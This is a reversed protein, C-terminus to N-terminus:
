YPNTTIEIEEFKIPSNTIFNFNIIFYRGYVLSNKDSFLSQASRRNNEPTTEDGYSYGYINDAHLVNRFFNVNWSDIDHKFGKYDLLGNTVSPVTNLRRTDDVDNNIANSVCSDTIIYMLAVPNKVKGDAQYTPHEPNYLLDYDISTDDDSVNYTSIKAKILNAIYKITNIVERNNENPFMVVAIGFPTVQMKYEDAGFFIDCQISAGGYLKLTNTLEHLVTSSISSSDFLSCLGNYYSYCKNKTNFSKILSIDHFSVFSKSKYNYSLCFRKDNTTVFDFLVRHNVDDHLTYCFRPNYYTLLKYISGDIIQIQGNGSYAFIHKSGKDYFFYSDFTICGAEKNYLGGYGYESDFVSIIGNEFPESEQLNIDSGSAAITQNADFKYLSDETHVYINNGISFLKVIKGRDTPVNYYDTPKFTYVSNNFTEESLINSVRITNDFQTLTDSDIPNFTKNMFDKYMSKLEYIYSLTLSNLVKAVQKVGSSASGISFLRDAVDETLSLYNLNFNSLINYTISNQPQIYGEFDTLKVYSSRDAAYVDGGAVYSNSSLIFDPKKVACLYSGTFLDNDDIKTGTAGTGSIDIYPTAKTLIHSNQKKNRTIKIFYKTYNYDDTSDWAIYGCNGFALPPYSSGSSYYKADSTVDSVSGDYYGFVSIKDNLNYLLSDAELCQVIHTNGEKIYGFCNIVIDGINELSIFFAKYKTSFATVFSQEIIYKLGIYGNDHTPVTDTSITNPLKFGNTIIGYSDVFHIYPQYTSLPMLTGKQETDEMNDIFTFTGQTPVFTAVSIYNTTKLTVNVKKHINHEDNLINEIDCKFQYKKFHIVCSTAKFTNGGDEIIMTGNEDVGQIKNGLITFIGTLIDNKTTIKLEGGTDAIIEQYIRDKYYTGDYYGIYAKDEVDTQYCYKYSKTGYFFEIYCRAFIEIGEIEKKINTDIASRAADSFERSQYADITSNNKQLFSVETSSKSYGSTSDKMSGYVYTFGTNKWPHLNSNNNTVTYKDTIVSGATCIVTSLASNGSEVWFPQKFNNGFIRESYVDFAGQGKLDNSINYVVALEPKVQTIEFQWKVDFSVCEKETVDRKSVSTFDATYDNSSIGTIPFYHKSNDWSYNTNNYKIERSFNKNGDYVDCSLTLGGSLEINPNFNSEKYNSIYLKNKFSTINKVNYLEYTSLLMDDINAEEIDEYDFYIKDDDDISTPFSKWIRADTAEDHTIIFGLQFELFRNLIKDDDGKNLFEIEFVFSKASDKHINIYKLGGQFTSIKESTGGFIPRSCLFWNTYVDKRIKYRIFFVYVGNPITKNYTKKLKLNAIPVEPAQKCVIEDVDLHSLNIHKLPIDEGEKYEAITLIKEGSINTTVCGSITGGGYNWVDNIKKTITNTIEDYEVIIDDSDFFYIKNDLGVIHGIINYENLPTSEEESASEEESTSEEEYSATIDTYGFDSILNGDDDVKMNRAYALSGEETTQPSMNLYLKPKVKM